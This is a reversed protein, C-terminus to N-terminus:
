NLREERKSIRQYANTLISDIIDDYKM